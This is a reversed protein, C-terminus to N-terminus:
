TGTRVRRLATPPLKPYIYVDAANMVFNIVEAPVEDAEVDGRGVGDIAWEGYGLILRKAAYWEAAIVDFTAGRKGVIEEIALKWWEKVHRFMLPAPFQIHGPYDDLPSEYRGPAVENLYPTQEEAM